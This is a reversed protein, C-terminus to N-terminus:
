PLCDQAKNKKDQLLLVLAMNRQLPQMIPQFLICLGRSTDLSFSPSVPSFLTYVYSLLGDKIKTFETFYTNVALPGGQFYYFLCLFINSTNDGQTVLTRCCYPKYLVKSGQLIPKPSNSDQRLKGKWVASYFHQGGNAVM